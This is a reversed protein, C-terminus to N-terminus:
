SHFQELLDPAVAANLGQRNPLQGFAVLDVPPRYPYWDRVVLALSTQTTKASHHAHDSPQGATSGSFRAATM